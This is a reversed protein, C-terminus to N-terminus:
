CGVLRDLDNPQFRDLIPLMQNSIKNIWSRGKERIGELAIELHYPKSEKRTRAMEQNLSDALQASQICVRMIEPAPTTSSLGLSAALRGGGPSSMWTQGLGTDGWIYM